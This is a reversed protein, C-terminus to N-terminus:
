ANLRFDMEIRVNAAVHVIQAREGHEQLPGVEVDRAHGGHGLFM